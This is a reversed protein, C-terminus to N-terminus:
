RIRSPHAIVRGAARLRAQTSRLINYNQAIIDHTQENTATIGCSLQRNVPKTNMFSLMTAPDDGPQAETRSWDITAGDLRAPTGTKLRGLTIGLDDLRRALQTAANEGM